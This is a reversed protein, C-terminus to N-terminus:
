DKGNDVGPIILEKIAENILRAISSYSLNASTTLCPVGYLYETIVKSLTEVSCNLHDIKSFHDLRPIEDIIIGGTRDTGILEMIKKSVEIPNDSGIFYFESMKEGASSVPRVRYLIKKM